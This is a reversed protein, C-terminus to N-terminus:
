RCWRCEPKARPRLWAPWSTPCNNAIPKSWSSKRGLPWPTRGNWTSRQRPKGSEAQIAPPCLHQKAPKTSSPRYRRRRETNPLGLLNPGSSTLGFQSDFTDLAQYILPYDYADVIAITQGTGDLAVNNVGYATRIQVPTYVTTGDAVLPPIPSPMAALHYRTWSWAAVSNSGSGIQANGSEALQADPAYITGSIGQM